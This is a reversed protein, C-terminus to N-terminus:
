YTDSIRREFRYGVTTVYGIGVSVVDPKVSVRTPSGLELPFHLSVITCSAVQNCPYLDGRHGTRGICDKIQEIAITRDIRVLGIRRIGPVCTELTHPM